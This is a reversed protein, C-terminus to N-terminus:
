DDWDKDWSLIEGTESHIEYDYEWRDVQFEVDYEWRGHDYDLETRLYLLQDATYGAHALAIAEAKEKTMAEEPARVPATEPVVTEEPVPILPAAETAADAVPVPDSAATREASVTPAEAPTGTKDLSSAETVAACGVNLLLMLVALLLAACKQIKM